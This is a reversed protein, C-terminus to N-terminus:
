KESVPPLIARLVGINHAYELGWNRFNDDSINPSSLITWAYNFSSDAYKDIIAIPDTAIGALYDDHPQGDRKALLNVAHVVEAPIGEDLLEKDTVDTDEKTDHLYAGAISLAGYGLRKVIGAIPRLHMEFYSEDGFFHLQGEHAREAIEAAKQVLAEGKLFEPM